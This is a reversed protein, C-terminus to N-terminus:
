AGMEETIKDLWAQADEANDFEPVEIPASAVKNAHRDCYSAKCYVFNEPEPGAQRRWTAASITAVGRDSLADKVCATCEGHMASASGWQFPFTQGVRPGAKARPRRDDEAVWPTLIDDGYFCRLLTPRVEDAVPTPPAYKADLLEMAEDVINKGDIVAKCSLISFRGVCREGCRPCVRPFDREPLSSSM